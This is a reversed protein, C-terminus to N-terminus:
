YLRQSVSLHGERHSMVDSAFAANVMQRGSGVRQVWLGYSYTKLKNHNIISFNTHFPCCIRPTLIQFHIKDASACSHIGKPNANTERRKM